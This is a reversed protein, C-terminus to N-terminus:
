ATDLPKIKGGRKVYEDWRTQAEKRLKEPIDVKFAESEEYNAILALASDMLILAARNVGSTFNQFDADKFEPDLEAASQTIGTMAQSLLLATRNVADAKQSKTSM